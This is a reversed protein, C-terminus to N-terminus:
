DAAGPTGVAALIDGTGDRLNPQAAALVGGREPNPEIITKDVGAGKLTLNEDITLANTGPKGNGEVFTGACIVITDGPGATDIAKQVRRYDAQPCSKKPGVTRTSADASSAFALAAAGVAVVTALKSVM